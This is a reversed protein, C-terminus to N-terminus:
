QKSENAKEDLCICIALLLAIDVGPAVTLVYTQQDFFVQGANAFQRMIRAVVIGDETRIEASRDIIDGKLILSIERGDGATNRFTATLKTGFSLSSKVTFLQEKSQPSLGRYTAHIALIKKDLMFLPQGQADKIVKNDRLSFTRGDVEFLKQGTMADKVAFDDGSFSMKRERIRLGMEQRHQCFYPIIGIPSPVPQLPPPAPGTNGILSNLFGM